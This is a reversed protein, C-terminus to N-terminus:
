GKVIVLLAAVGVILAAILFGPMPSEAVHEPSTNSKGPNQSMFLAQEAARRRTLGALVRGGAKNWRPFEAAAGAYDGANLKRLLTSSRLNGPGLNYTFSVLAAFQNTSLPVHVASVVAAEYQRLDRRLIDEGDAKTFTMHQTLSYKPDGAADTHGYCCTKVGVPDSYWRPIFGEFEKILDVGAQNTKM